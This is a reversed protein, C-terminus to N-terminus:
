IIYGRLTTHAEQIERAKEEDGGEETIRAALAEDLLKDGLVCDASLGM